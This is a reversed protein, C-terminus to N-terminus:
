TFADFYEIRALRAAEQDRLKVLRELVEVDVKEEVALRMLSMVDTVTTVETGM